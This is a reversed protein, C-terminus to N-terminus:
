LAPAFHAEVSVTFTGAGGGTAGEAASKIDAVTLNGTGQCRLFVTATTGSVFATGDSTGVAAVTFASDGSGASGQSRTIESIAANLEADNITGDSAIKVILERGADSQSIRNKLANAGFTTTFVPSGSTSNNAAIENRSYVDAM